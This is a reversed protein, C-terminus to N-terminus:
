WEYHKAASFYLEGFQRDEEIKDIDRDDLVKQWKPGGDESSEERKRKKVPSSLEPNQWSDLDGHKGFIDFNIHFKDM